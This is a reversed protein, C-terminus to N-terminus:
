KGCPGLREGTVEIWMDFKGHIYYDHRAHLRTKQYSVKGKILPPNDGGPCFQEWSGEDYGQKVYHIQCPQGVEMLKRVGLDKAPDTICLTEPPAPSFDGFEKSHIIGDLRWLGPEINISGNSDTRQIPCSCVAEIPYHAPQPLVIEM